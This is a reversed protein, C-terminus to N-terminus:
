YGCTQKSRFLIRSNPVSHGFNASKQKLRTPSNKFEGMNKQLLVECGALLLRIM